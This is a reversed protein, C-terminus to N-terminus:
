PLPSQSSQPSGGLLTAPELTECFLFLLCLLLFTVFLSMCFAHCQPFIHVYIGYNPCQTRLWHCPSPAICWLDPSLQPVQLPKRRNIQRRTRKYLKGLYLRRNETLFLHSNERSFYTRPRLEFNGM